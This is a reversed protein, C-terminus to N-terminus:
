DLSCRFHDTSVGLIARQYYWFITLHSQFLSWRRDHSFNQCRYMQSTQQHPAHMWRVNDSWASPSKDRNITVLITRTHSMRFSDSYLGVLKQQRHSLINPTAFRCSILYVVDFHNINWTQDMEAVNKHVHYTLHASRSAFALHLIFYEESVGMGM